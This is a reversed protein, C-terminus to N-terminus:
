MGMARELANPFRREFDQIGVWEPTISIRAMQPALPEVQKLWAKGGEDGNYRMAATAYEAAIGEVITVHATGRMLLVKYPPNMDNITVAVKANDLVKVKPAGTPSAIVLESGNWHFWIPVVRPTGDKWNYAVQAMNTSQLLKQAVPDNLLDLSGQKTPM